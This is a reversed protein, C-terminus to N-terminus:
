MSVNDTMTAKWEGAIQEFVLWAASQDSRHFVLIYSEESDDYLGEDKKYPESKILAIVEKTFIEDAVKLFEERNEFGGYGQGLYYGWDWSYFEFQMMDAVKEYKKKVVAKKFAKGFTEFDASQANALLLSSSLFLILLFRM